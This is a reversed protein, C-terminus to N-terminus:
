RTRRSIRHHNIIPHDFKTHTRALHPGTQSHGSKTTGRNMTKLIPDSAHQIPLDIYACLKEETALLDILENRWGTPYAYLMRVWDLGEIQILEKLLDILRPKGYLDAGYRMTDQAILAIERVGNGVM